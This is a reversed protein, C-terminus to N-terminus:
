VLYRVGAYIMVGYFLLSLLEKPIKRLLLAGFVGGVCAGCSVAIGTSVEYAGRMAFAIASVVCLPLVVAITSAHARREEVGLCYRMAPVVLMGGGGGFLANVFGAVIALFAAAIRGGRKKRLNWREDARYERAKESM